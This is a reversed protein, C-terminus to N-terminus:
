VREMVGEGGKRSGGSTVFLVVAVRVRSWLTTYLTVRWALLQTPTLLLVLRIIDISPINLLFQGCMELDVPSSLLKKKNSAVAPYNWM